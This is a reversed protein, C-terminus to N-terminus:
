RTAREPRRLVIWQVLILLPTLRILTVLFSDFASNINSLTGLLGFLVVIGGAGMSRLGDFLGRQLIGVVFFGLVVAILGGAFYLYTFASMGTSSVLQLQMVENTYWLGINQLPKTSWVFRPIFAYAPALLINELFEPSNEPLAEAVDAYRIGLSAIYTLNYRALFSLAVSGRDDSQISSASTLLSVISSVSTGSFSTDENRAARFPEIVAYAVMVGVVISPALWAPFRRRQSYYALGAIIFPMVVASKFGSIFGFAVEFGVLVWLLQGDGASPRAAGFRQLAVLVLAVKGLAEAMSLYERYAAGALLADYTSSYGYVGLGIAVLRAALSIAVMAYIASRNLEKAGSFAQRLLGSNRIGEAMKQGLGCSHGLWMACAGLVVLLMLKNMWPTAVPRLGVWELVSAPLLFLFNTIGFPLLFTLVSALVVPNIWYLSPERRWYMVLEAGIYATLLATFSMLADFQALAESSLAAYLILAVIVAGARLVFPGPGGLSPAAADRYVSASPRSM